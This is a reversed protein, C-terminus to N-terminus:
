EPELGSYVTERRQIRMVLVRRRSPSVRYVLRWGPAFRIRYLGPHSKLEVADAPTPDEGLEAFVVAAAEALEDDPKRFERAAGASSQVDWANKSSKLLPAPRSQPNTSQGAASSIIPKTKPSVIRSRRNNANSRWPEKM